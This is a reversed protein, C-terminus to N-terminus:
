PKEKGSNLGIFYDRQKREKETSPKYSVDSPPQYGLLNEMMDLKLWLASIGATRSYKSKKEFCLLGDVKYEADSLAAQICGKNSPIKTLVELSLERKGSKLTVDTLKDELWFFRFEAEMDYFSQQRWQMIDIVFFKQFNGSWLCDLIIMENQKEGEALSPAGNPLSSTFRDVLKGYKNYTCTSGNTAVIIRRKAIPCICTLYDTEFNEPKREMWQSKMVGHPEEWNPECQNNPRPSSKKKKKLQKIRGPQPTHQLHQEREGTGRSRFYTNNNNSNFNQYYQSGSALMPQDHHSYPRQRGHINLKMMDPLYSYDENPNMQRAGVGRMSRRNNFPPRNENFSHSSEEFGRPSDFSHPFPPPAMELYRRNSMQSQVNRNQDRVSRVQIRADRGTPYVQSIIAPSVGHALALAVPDKYSVATVIGMEPIEIKLKSPLRDLTLWLLFPTSGAQYTAHKHCFLLGDILYPAMTVAACINSKTPTFTKLPVFPYPNMPSPRSLDYDRIKDQLFKFRAQTSCNYAPQGDWCMLDLVYYTETENCYICDLVCAGFGQFMKNGMPLNSPHSIIHYGTKTYAGTYGRSAVVLCRSGVPCVVMLWNKAFSPPVEEMSESMMLQNKFVKSKVDRVDINPRVLFNLFAQTHEYYVYPKGKLKDLIETRRDTQSPQAGLPSPKKKPHLGPSKSILSQNKKVSTSNNSANKEEKSNSTTKVESPDKVDEDSVVVGNDEFDAMM